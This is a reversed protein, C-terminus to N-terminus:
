PSLQPPVSHQLEFADFNGDATTHLEAHGDAFGYVKGWKGDFTPWADPEQVVIVNAPNSIESRSGQFVIQFDNTGSVPFRNTYADLQNVNTPYQGQHDNAYYIQDIAMNKADSAKAEFMQRQRDRASDDEAPQRAQEERLSNELSAQSEGLENTKQRLRGVEGRLRLLENFQDDTLKKADSADTLRNSLDNNDNQLQALQQRLSQNEALLKSQMQHQVVFATTAGAVVLAGLGLKLQTATMIKLLTFTTGTAAAALSTNTLVSALGVPVTQIANASVVTSLAAVTTTVGHKQLITRLKELARTIRKRAADESGGLNAGIQSFSQQEFFRLLLADRDAKGLRDLAEDLLPRIQQWDASESESQVANMIVAQQERERRRRDGRLTQRAAFITARHLWGALIINESLGPAKRALDTFVLQAVDKALHEDGGAQRIATSYVLPLHRTVLEGFAAESREEAFRRLLQRDDSM